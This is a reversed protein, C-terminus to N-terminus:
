TREYINVVREPKLYEPLIVPLTVIDMSIKLSNMLEERLGMVAFISPVPQIFKVMLDIDSKDTATGMAYSGFLDVKELDYKKILPKLADSIIETTLIM